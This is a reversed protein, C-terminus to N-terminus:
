ASSSPRASPEIGKVQEICRLWDYWAAPDSTGGDPQITIDALLTEMDNGASQYFQELFCRMADLGEQETLSFESRDATSRIMRSPQGTPLEEAQMSGIPALRLVERRADALNVGLSELVTAAVSDGQRLLGLLLHETGLYLHEMSRAEDIALKIVHKAAPTLGVEGVVPRKGADIQFEVATRVKPLEVGLNVLVKAGAGGDVGIVGLLIHEPGLYNQGFRTAAAQADNLAQRARDTFKDFRDM